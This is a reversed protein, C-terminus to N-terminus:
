PGPEDFGVDLVLDMQIHYDLQYSSYLNTDRCLVCLMFEAHPSNLYNVFAVSEDAPMWESNGLEITTVDIDGGGKSGDISSGCVITELPNFSDWVANEYKVDLAQMAWGIIRIDRTEDPLAERAEASITTLDTCAQTIPQTGDYSVAITDFTLSANITEYDNSSSDDSSGTIVALGFLFTTLICLSRIFASCHQNTAIM